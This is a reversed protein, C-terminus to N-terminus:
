VLAGALLRRPRGRLGRCDAHNQPRGERDEARWRHLLELLTNADTKLKKLPQREVGPVIGAVVWGSLSIEVVAILTHDV